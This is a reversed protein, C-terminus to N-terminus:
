FADVVNRLCPQNLGIICWMILIFVIVLYVESPTPPCNTPRTQLESLYFSM